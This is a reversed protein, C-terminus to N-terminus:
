RPNGVLERWRLCRLRHGPEAGELPPLSADCVGPAHHLCRPHFACGAPPRSPDPVFGEITDLPEDGRGARELRPVSRMLGDTYPMMPRTLVREVTGTEVVRGAYMVMARDAIEAVVGFNHTVFLMAMGTRHQLGRLLDLIQAQVTVDLATTPEDAILIDPELALAIAIMVRQRMGGSLEHPFADLRKGPEPIGVRELLDLAQRRATRADVNRHCRISEVIQAGVRHVPNLSTLPEQFIMAIRAGRLRRVRREGLAILDLREAGRQLIARGTVRARPPAPLLRMLALSTVSKGSGSEGVVALTEGADLALDVDHVVGVEGDATRFRVSLDTVTLRRESM